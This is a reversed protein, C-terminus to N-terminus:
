KMVPRVSLGYFYFVTGKSIYNSNFYITWACNLDDINPLSSWYHGSIGMDYLNSDQHYGATPLFIFNSNIKSTIEYGKIDNRITWTCTCNEFLEEWENKTPIRWINNLNVYANNDKSNFVIKNNIINYNNNINYKISTKKNRKYWKYTDWNYINKPIVENWAYHNGYEEPKNAGMNCNAWKVSLGLDIAEM